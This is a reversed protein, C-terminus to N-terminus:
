HLTALVAASAKRQREIYESKDGFNQWLDNVRKYCTKADELRHRSVYFDGLITEAKALPLLGMLEGSGVLPEAQTCARRLLSEAEVFDRNAAHARGDLILLYISVSQEEMDNSNDAGSQANFALQATQRAERIQGAKLQAEGLRWMARVRRSTLMYTPNGAAIMQDFARVSEHATRVAAPPDIERLPGSMRFLAVARSFQASRNAPDRRLNDEAANLYRRENELGRVYDDENPYVDSFYVDARFENLIAQRRHLRPNQPEVSLLENLLSEDEDLAALADAFRGLESAATGVREDAQALQSVGDHDRVTQLQARVLDRCRSFDTFAQRYHGMDEDIDGLTCWAEAYHAELVHNAAGGSRVRDYTHIALESLDRAQKLDHTFRVLGAYEVYYAALDPLYANNKAAIRQYIDGAKRYSALADTIRGLNAKTPYGQADGIKEYAAAIEKQLELDNGANQALDDLYKLGTQVMMERARTSGELKAIEDHLDFVFTHALHRVDEFRRRALRAQYVAVTLAAVIAGLALSAFIVAIRNRRVFKGARYAFTDPRASIPQSNLFRRLDDGFATVSVYREGPNKKLAKGLITELDGRIQRRLKERSTSRHEAASIPLAASARLPETEVIAKMLEAPSGTASGAPHEGTLLLYLLVGLAYVDTATSIAGGSLQEPAAFQPTLAGGGTGTLATADAPGAQDALLKAIGFDLLKVEGDNRVLVNSPKIDRHVILNAHAQAVASIVDLFLHIRAHVDLKRSDCYEDIAKGEVYELVLYPVGNATVGADVLEAIHPHALRGLFSGERKFREANVQTALAFNLFKIAVQREFRGDNRAALWVSGMGGQGIPASLTYAGVVQGALSSEALPRVPETELFHEETVVKHEELLNRLDEALQPHTTRLEQLWTKREDESLGLAHDLHPSIEQWRDPTLTFM